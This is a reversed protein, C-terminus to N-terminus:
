RSIWESAAGIVEYEFAVGEPDNEEFWGEAPDISAFVKLNIRTPRRVTNPKAWSRAQDSVLTFGSFLNICRCHLWM